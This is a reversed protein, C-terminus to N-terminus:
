QLEQAAALDVTFSLPRERSRGHRVMLGQSLAFTISRGVARSGPELWPRRFGTLEALGSDRSLNAFANLGVSDSPVIGIPKEDFVARYMSRIAPEAQVAEKEKLV